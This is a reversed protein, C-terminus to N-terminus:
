LCHPSWSGERNRFGLRYGLVVRGLCQRSPPADRWEHPRRPIRAPARPTVPRRSRMGPLSTRCRGAPHDQTGPAVLRAPGRRGYDQCPGVPHARVKRTLPQLAVPRRSPRARDHPRGTPLRTRARQSLGGGPAHTARARRVAGRPAGNLVTLDVGPSLLVEFSAPPDQAWWAAVDLDSVPVHTGAARSGHVLAFRAGAARLVHAVAIGRDDPM